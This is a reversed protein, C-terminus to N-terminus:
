DLPSIPTPYDDATAAAFFWLTDLKDRYVFVYDYDDDSYVATIRAFGSNNMAAGDVTVAAGSMWANYIDGAKTALSYEETQADFNVQVIMVGDAIGQEIKNLKTSTVVDGTKWDTPEYAM